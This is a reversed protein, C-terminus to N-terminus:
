QPAASNRATGAVGRRGLARGVDIAAIALASAAVALSWGALSMPALDLWGGLLPVSSVLVQAGASGCVAVLLAGNRWWGSEFALRASRSVYALGLHAFVLTAVLQSQVRAASWGLQQAIAGAALVVAAVAAARSGLSRLRALNIVHEGAARRPPTDSETRDVGLALAPLGDTILNVWLLQVPRLPVPLDSLLVVAGLVVLVESLNGALLYSVLSVVNRYIRRGERVAEVLIGLDGTTVVIDSAERAVDTGAAGAVAIGVDAQRLAPADNVGDGTMAVIDGCRRHAAILDVKVSPDVRAIVAASTLLQFREDTPLGALESGSVARGPELGADRAVAVATDLHDGTALVVRIGAARCASVADRASPRLPDVFSVLGLPELHLAELNGTQGAAFALVRRGRRALKQAAQELSARASGAACRPFVAEPAGKVSLVHGDDVRHITAMLRTTADFPQEDVRPGPQRVHGRQAAAALLALDIPDSGGTTADNCRVIAQWLAEESGPSAIVDAVELQGTTLTGTKDVCLVSTSGLAEIATLQRVIAGRRAMRQAGLALSATMAAPLGEPIAAVALAVGALLADLFARDGEGRVVGVIVVVLGLGVAATAMWAGVRRLERALPPEPSAALLGAIRGLETRAGTSVVTGTAHGRVVLTGGSISSGAPKEAPLSEGTLIAEDVALSAARTLSADAPVRDGAAVEIVDGVVIDAAPVSRLQGDRWVTATPATLERLAAMADDARRAQVAGVAADLAVIALIAAGETVERLVVRSLAAAALLLLSLPERLQLACRLALGPPKATPLTNTGDVALRAAAAAESLGIGPASPADDITHM